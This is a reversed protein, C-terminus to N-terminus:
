FIKQKQELPKGEWTPLIYRSVIYYDDGSNLGMQPVITM